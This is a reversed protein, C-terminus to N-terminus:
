AQRDGEAQGGARLRLGILSVVCAGYGAALLGLGIGGLVYAAGYSVSILAAVAAALFGACLTATLVVAATWSWGAGRRLGAVVILHALGLAVCASGLAAMAGGVAAADIALDAPLAARVRQPDGVAVAITAVGVLVLLAGVVLLFRAVLVVRRSM